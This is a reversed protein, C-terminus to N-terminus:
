PTSTGSAGQAALAARRAVRELGLTRAEREVALCRERGQRPSASLEVAALDLRVELARKVLGTTTAEEAVVALRSRASAVDGSAAAVLAAVAATELRADASDAAAAATIAAAVEDGAEDLRGQALRVRALLALALAEDKGSGGDRAMAIAESAATAASEPDGRDLAILALGRRSEAALPKVGLEQSVSFARELHVAAAAAEGHALLAEGWYALAAAEGFRWGTKQCLQNAEAARDAAIVADGRALLLESSNVLALIQGQVAGLERALSLAQDYRATAGDLDGMASLDNAINNLSNVVGNLDGIEEKIALSEEYLAVAGRRDGQASMVAALNNLAAAVAGRRGSERGIAIAQEYRARAGALDGTRQLINAQAVLSRAVGASDDAAAYSARAQDAAAVAEASAGLAGQAFSVELLADAALLSAGSKSGAAVTRQAAALQRQFDGQTSAVRAEVLDIRPDDRAPPPLQRLQEVAAMAEDPRGANILARALQLGPEADTPFAKWESRQLEAERDYDYNVRYYTSEIPRRLRAPLGESLRLAQEAAVQAKKEYGLLFLARAELAKLSPHDPERALAAELSDITGQGDWARMSELALAYLRNAEPDEPFGARVAGRDAESVQRLELFDRLGASAEEILAFLDDEAGNTTFTAVTEGRETDQVHVVLRVKGGGSEGIALYSGLLVLDTGLNAGVQALREEPLTEATAIGLERKVRAVTEGPVVRLQGDVAMEAVLMESLATSMWDAAPRGSLNKFGLVAVSDHSPALLRSLLLGLGLAVVTLALTPLIFRRKLRRQEAQREAEALSDLLARGDAFRDEPRRALLRQVIAESREDVDPALARLSRPEQSLRALAVELPTAGTFPLDGTLMEFLVVGLAFMDAAPTIPRGEVQEPAMYAPTGVVMKDEEKAVEAFADRALDGRALGFDAVAVRFGGAESSDPVLIVNGSKFDRHVVGVKHAAALASAMQRLLPLAEDAAMPGDQRLRDALTRGELLEMTLFTVTESGGGARERTHHFIDFIRCVNPHTIRHSLHIERKFRDLADRDRAIEPRITKLAIRKKLEVDEVEYVEGMGGAAIFGVIRFRGAVVEDPAFAAGPRAPRYGGPSRLSAVDGATTARVDMAAEVTSGGPLATTAQPDAAGDAHGPIAVTGGGAARPLVTTQGDPPAQAAGPSAVPRRDDAGSM